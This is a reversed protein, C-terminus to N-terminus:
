RHRCDEPCGKGDHPFGVHDLDDEEHAQMIKLYHAGKPTLWSGGISTGHEILGAHTLLSLVVHWTGYDQDRVGIREAVAERNSTWNGGPPPILALLDRVLKRGDDPDGCGCFHLDGYILQYLHCLNDECRPCYPDPVTEGTYAGNVRVYRTRDELPTSCKPCAATVTEM